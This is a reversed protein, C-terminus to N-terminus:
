IKRPAFLTVRAGGGPLNGTEMRGGVWELRERIAFMGFGGLLSSPQSVTSQGSVVPWQGSNGDVAPALFGRGEDSVMLRLRVGDAAELAVAARNVGSHKVVNFLLERTAHFLLLRVEVPADLSEDLQLEVDVGHNEKTWRAQWRIADALSGEYLIPPALEATLSRSTELAAQLM